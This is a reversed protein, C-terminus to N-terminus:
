ENIIKWFQGKYFIDNELINFTGQNLADIQFESLPECKNHFKMYGSRSKKVKNDVEKESLTYNSIHYPSDFEDTSEIIHAISDRQEKTLPVHFNWTEGEWENNEEFTYYNMIEM